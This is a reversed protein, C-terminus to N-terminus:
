NIGANQDRAMVVYKTKDGNVELGFEKSGEILAETNEKVTQVSGGLITVDAGYVLFQHTGNLKLSDQNAQVRRIAYHLDFNFLLLTLTDGQKLGKKIRFM